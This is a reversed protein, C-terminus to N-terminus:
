HGIGIRVLDSPIIIGLYHLYALYIFWFAILIRLLSTEM